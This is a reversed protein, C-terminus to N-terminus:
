VEPWNETELGSWDKMTQEHISRNAKLDKIISEKLSIKGQLNKELTEAIFQSRKGQPITTQLKKLTTTPLSINIRKNM